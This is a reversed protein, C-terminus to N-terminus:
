REFRCFRLIETAYAHAALRRQEFEPVFIMLSCFEGNLEGIGAVVGAEVVVAGLTSGTMDVGSVSDPMKKSGPRVNSDKRTRGRKMTAAM